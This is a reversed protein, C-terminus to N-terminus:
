GRFARIGAHAAMRHHLGNRVRRAPFVVQMSFISCQVAGGASCAVLGIVADPAVVFQRPTVLRQRDERSPAMGSQRKKIRACAQGTMRELTRARFTVGAPQGRPARRRNLM